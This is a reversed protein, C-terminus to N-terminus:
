FNLDIKKKFKYRTPSFEKQVGYGPWNKSLFLVEKRTKRKINESM